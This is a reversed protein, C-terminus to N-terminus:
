VGNWHLILNVLSETGSLEIGVAWCDRRSTCYVGTLFSVGATVVAPERRLQPWWAPALRPGDAVRHAVAPRHSGGASAPASGTWVSTSAIIAAFLVAAPWGQGRVPRMGVGM